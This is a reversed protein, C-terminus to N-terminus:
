VSKTSLRYFSPFSPPPSSFPPYIHFAFYSNPFSWLSFFFSSLFLFPFPFFPFSFLFLLFTSSFSFSFFFLSVQSCKSCRFAGAQKIMARCLGCKSSTYSKDHGFVHEQGWPTKETLTTLSGVLLADLEKIKQDGVRKDMVPIVVKEKGYRGGRDTLVRDNSGPKEKPTTLTLITKSRRKPIVNPTEEQNTGSGTWALVEMEM